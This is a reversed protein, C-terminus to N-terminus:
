ADELVRPRAAPRPSRKPILCEPLPRDGAPTPAPPTERARDRGWSGDGGRRLLLLERVALAVPVGFTLAGSLLIYLEPDM